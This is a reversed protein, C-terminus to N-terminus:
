SAKVKKSDQKCFIGKYLKKYELAGIFICKHVLSPKATWANVCFGLKKRHQFFFVSTGQTLDATTLLNVSHTQHRHESQFRTVIPKHLNQLLSVLQQSKNIIQSPQFSVNDHMTKNRAEWIHYLIIVFLDCDLTSFVSSVKFAQLHSSLWISFDDQTGGSLFSLTSGFWVARSFPCSVFLHFLSEDNASCFYCLQQVPLHSQVM